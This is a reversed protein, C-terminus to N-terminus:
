RLSCGPVALASSVHEMWSARSFSLDRRSTLGGFALGDQTDQGNIRAELRKFCGYNSAFVRSVVARYREACAEHVLRRRRKVWGQTVSGRLPAM